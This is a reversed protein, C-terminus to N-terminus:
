EFLQEEIEAKIKKTSYIETECEGLYEEIIVVQKAIADALSQDKLDAHGLIVTLPNRIKDLTENLTELNEVMQIHSKKLNTIDLFSILFILDEGKVVKSITVDVWRKLGNKTLITNQFSVEEANSKNLANLHGLFYTKEFDFFVSAFDQIM